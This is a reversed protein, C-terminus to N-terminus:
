LEKEASKKDFEAIQNAYQMKINEVLLASEKYPREALLNLIYNMEEDTLHYNM